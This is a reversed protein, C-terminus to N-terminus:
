QAAAAAEAPVGPLTPLRVVFESGLGPGDSHATVSGGHITVLTNVLSLGIGLGGQARDARHRGQVFLDFVQSLLERPM